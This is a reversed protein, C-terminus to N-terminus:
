YLEYDQKLARTREDHLEIIPTCIPAGFADVLRCVAVKAALAEYAALWSAEDASPEDSAAARPFVREMGLRRPKPTLRARWCNQRICLEHYLSDVGLHRCLMEMCPSQPLLADATVALRWGRATRYVRVGLSKDGECLKRAMQLLKEEDRNKSGLLRLLRDSWSLSVRDVDLFCTNSSNLVEVGYRNRTIINSPDPQQLIPEAIVVSYESEDTQEDLKRLRARYEEVAMGAPSAYMALHLRAKENLRERAEEMSRFSYGLMKFIMGAIERQGRVWYPAIKM